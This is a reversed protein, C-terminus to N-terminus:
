KSYRYDDLYDELTEPTMNPEEIDWNIAEVLHMDQEVLVFGPDNLTDASLLDKRASKIELFAKDLDEVAERYWKKICRYDRIATAKNLKDIVLSSPLLSYYAKFGEAPEEWIWQWHSLIRQSIDRDFSASYDLLLEIAEDIIEPNKDDTEAYRIIRNIEGVRFFGGKIKHQKVFDALRRASLCIRQYQGEFAEIV